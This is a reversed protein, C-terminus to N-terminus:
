AHPVPSGMTFNRFKGTTLRRSRYVEAIGRASLGKPQVRARDSRQVDAMDLLSRVTDVGAFVDWIPWSWHTKRAGQTHFGVTELQRYTPLTPFLPLAEIALRNAGWMSGMSKRDPDGSPDSWRLAYRNDDSPDWRLTMNQVPDDYRWHDFLTKRLHEPQVQEIFNRMFKLFHQHGAGSMTRLATDPVKGEKDIPHEGAFATAFDSRTRDGDLSAQACSQAYPRFVGLPVSPNDGLAFVESPVSAALKASLHEVFAHEELATEMALVPRWANEHKMWRLRVDDSDLSLVRLTGIAALFGLPNAGDIGHLLIDNAM